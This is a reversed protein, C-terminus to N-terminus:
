QVRRSYETREADCMGVTLRALAATLEKEKGTNKRKRARHLALCVTVAKNVRPTNM